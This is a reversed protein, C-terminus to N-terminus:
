VVSKRDVLYQLHHSIHESIFTQIFFYSHDYGERMRIQLTLPALSDSRQKHAAILADPQLEELFPDNTGQDILINLDPGNYTKILETADNEKWAAFNKGFYTSFVKKGLTSKSPNCIPAFASVSKYRGPNQMSVVLAGHGGMSHGFISEKDPLVSFNSKILEPLERTVYTNMKYGRNWPDETADVFFGAGVGVERSANENPLNLDRPSTDPSVLFIGHEAAFKLAFSKIMFNEDTCTLGSLFYLIPIKYMESKPPAFISFTM